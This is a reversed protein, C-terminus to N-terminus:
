ALFNMLLHIDAVPRSSTRVSDTLVWGIYRLHSGQLFYTRHTIMWEGLARICELRISPEADRYRHVFVSSLLESIYSEIDMKQKHLQDVNDKFQKLRQKDRRSKKEETEHQRTAKSFDKEVVKAVQCLGSIFELVIVTSTHRFSRLRSSTAAVLWAQLTSCFLDDYLISSTHAHQVLRSIFESLSNRFKRLQKSKAILPYAAQAVKKFTDQIEEMKDTAGDHDVVEDNDVSESCGCCQSHILIIVSKNGIPAPSVRICFNVLEALPIGKAAEDKGRQYDNVWDDATLELASDGHRVAEFLDNDTAITYEKGPRPGTAAAAEDEPHDEEDSGRARAKRKRGRGAKGISEREREMAARTRRSATFDDESGESESVSEEGSLEMAKEITEKEAPKKKSSRKSEAQPM